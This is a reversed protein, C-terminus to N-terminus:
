GYRGWFKLQNVWRDGTCKGERATGRSMDDIGRVDRDVVSIPNSKKKKM